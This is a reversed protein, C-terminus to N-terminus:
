KMDELCISRIGHSTFNQVKKKRIDTSFKHAEAQATRSSIKM